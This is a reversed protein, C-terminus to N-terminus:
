EDAIRRGPRDPDDVEFLGINLPEQARGSLSGPPAELRQRIEQRQRAMEPTESAEKTTPGFYSVWCRWNNDLDVDLAGWQGELAVAFATEAEIREKYRANILGVSFEVNELEPHREVVEGESKAYGMPAQFAAEACGAIPYSPRV